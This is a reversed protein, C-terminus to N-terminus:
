EVVVRDPGLVQPLPVGLPLLQIFFRLIPHKTGPHRYTAPSEDARTEHAACSVRASSNSAVQVGGGTKM